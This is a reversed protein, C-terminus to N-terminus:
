SVRFMRRGHADGAKKGQSKKMKLKWIAYSKELFELTTADSHSGM